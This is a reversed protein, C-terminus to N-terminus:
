FDSIFLEGNMETISNIHHTDIQADSARWIVQANHVRDDLIDYRLVEDTGTSLVYINKKTAFISHGDKVDTLEQYSLPSLDNQRLIALYYKNENESAIFRSFLIFIKKGNAALGRADRVPEPYGLTIPAYDIPNELDGPIRLCLVPYITPSPLNCFSVLIYRFEM